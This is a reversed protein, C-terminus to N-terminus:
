EVEELKQGIADETERLFEKNTPDENQECVVQAQSAMETGSAEPSSAGNAEFSPVRHRRFSDLGRSERAVDFGQWYDESKSGRGFNNDDAILGAAYGAHYDESALTATVSAGTIELGSEHGISAHGESPNPDQAPLGLGGEGVPQSPLPDAPTFLRDIEAQALETLLDMSQLQRDADSLWADHQKKTQQYQALLDNRADQVLAMSKLLAERKAERKLEVVNDSM